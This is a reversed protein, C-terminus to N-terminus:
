AGLAKDIEATVAASDPLVSTSWRKILKGDKGLLWKEFNWKVAGSGGPQAKLWTFIPHEGPPNVNLTDFTTFNVGYNTECTDQEGASGGQNLFQNSYFGLVTFGKNQYTKQLKALNGLQPTYGCKAAINVVLVVQGRYQCMPVEQGLDKASLAYFTGATPPPVCQYRLDPSPPPLDPTATTDPAPSRDPTVAADSSAAADLSTGPSVDDSCGVAAPLAVPLCLLLLLSRICFRTHLTLM